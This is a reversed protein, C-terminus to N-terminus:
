IPKDGVKRELAPILEHREKLFPNVALARRYAALAERYEEKAIRILGLGALAGFHRPELALVREIDALSRDHEGGLYLATARKNWAEAWGPARKVIDDLAPLALTALGAGMLRSAREMKEDLDPTGSQLWVRWIEVVTEEGEQEDKTSKLRDFLEDLRQARAAAGPDTQALGSGGLQVGLLGLAFLLAAIRVLGPLQALHPAQLTRHM